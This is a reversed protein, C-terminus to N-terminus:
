RGGSGRGGRTAVLARRGRPTLGLHIDVLGDAVLEPAYRWPLETAPDAVFRALAALADPGAAFVERFEVGEFSFSHRGAKSELEGRAAVRGASAGDVVVEYEGGEHERLEIVSGADSRGRFGLVRGEVPGAAPSPGGHYIHTRWQARAAEDSVWETLDREFSRGIDLLRRHLHRRASGGRGAARHEAELHHYAMALGGLEAVVESPIASADKSM